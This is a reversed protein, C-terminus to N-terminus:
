RTGAAGGAEAARDSNGQSPQSGARSIAPSYGERSSQFLNLSGGVGMWLPGMGPLASM